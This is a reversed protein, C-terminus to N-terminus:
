HWARPLACLQLCYSKGLRGRTCLRLHWSSVCQGLLKNLHMNEPRQGWLTQPPLDWPALVRCKLFTAGTIRICVSNILLGPKRLHQVPPFYLPHLFKGSIEPDSSKLLQQIHSCFVAQIKLDGGGFRVFQSPSQAAMVLPLYIM